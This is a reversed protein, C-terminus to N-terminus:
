RKAIERYVELWKLQIEAPWGDSFEPFAPLKGDKAPKPRAPAKGSRMGWRRMLGCWTSTAIDWKRRTNLEGISKIDALLRLRHRHYWNRKGRLTWGDWDAAGPKIIILEGETFPDKFRTKAVSRRATSVCAEVTKQIM